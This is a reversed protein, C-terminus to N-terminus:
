FARSSMLWRTLRQLISRNRIPAPNLATIPARDWQRSAARQDHALEIASLTDLRRAHDLYNRAERSMPISRTRPLPTVDRLRDCDIIVPRKSIANETM